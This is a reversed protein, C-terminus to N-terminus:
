KRRLLINIYFILKKADKNSFYINMNSFIFVFVFIFFVFTSILKM